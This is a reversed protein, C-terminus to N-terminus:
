ETLMGNRNQSVALRETRVMVKRLIIEIQEKATHMEQHYTADLNWGLFARRYQSIAKELNVIEDNEHGNLLFKITRMFDEYHNEGVEGQMTYMKYPTASLLLVKAQRGTVDQYNFLEQALLAFENDEDLLYKFRQFEDLIILDPQLAALSSKALLRRLKGIFTNRKMRMSQDLNKRRPDIEISLDDYLQRLDPQQQLSAIFAKELERDIKESKQFEELRIKWRDPRVDGRLINSLSAESVRWAKRLLNFLVVREWDWGTQSSLNFSTGPTLSIFNLKNEKLKQIKIPLLTARSAHQFTRENAINLRDINQQAIEQNSCIYVVDIREVDDWLREVVSAIVGRAVLTKGLGVEDAILFRSIPDPDTYLRRFVYDVTDRQFDKLGQLVKHVDPRAMEKSNV